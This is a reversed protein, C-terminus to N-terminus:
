GVPQQLKNRNGETYWVDSPIEKIGERCVVPAVVPIPIPANPPVPCEVRSLLVQMELSLPSASLTGRQQLYAHWKTLTPTQAMATTPQHFM